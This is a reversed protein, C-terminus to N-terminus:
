VTFIGNDAIISVKCSTLLPAAQLMMRGAALATALSCDGDYMEISIGQWTQSVEETEM